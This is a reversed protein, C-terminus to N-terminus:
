QKKDLCRLSRHLHISLLNNGVNSNNDILNPRVQAPREKNKRGVDYGVTLHEAEMSEMSKYSGEIKSPPHLPAERAIREGGETNHNVVVDSPNKAEGPTESLFAKEMEEDSNFTFGRNQLDRFYHHPLEVFDSKMVQRKSRDTSSETSQETTTPALTTLGEVVEKQNSPAEQLNDETNIPRSISMGEPENVLEPVPLEIPNVIIPIDKKEVENPKGVIPVLMQNSEDNTRRSMEIEMQKRQVSILKCLCSKVDKIAHVIQRLETRHNSQKPLEITELHAEESEGYDDM